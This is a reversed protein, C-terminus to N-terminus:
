EIVEAHEDFPSGNIFNTTIRVPSSYTFFFTGSVPYNDKILGEFTVYKNIDIEHRGNPVKFM